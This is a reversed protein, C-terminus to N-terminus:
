FIEELSDHRGGAQKHTVILQKDTFSLSYISKINQYSSFILFSLM